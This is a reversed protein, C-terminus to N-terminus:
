DDTDEEGMRNFVREYEEALTRYYVLEAELDRVAVLRDRCEKLFRSSNVSLTKESENIIKTLNQILIDDDSMTM